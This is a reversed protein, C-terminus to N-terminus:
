VVSKRDGAVEENNQLINLGSAGLKTTLQTAITPIKAFLNATQPETMALVNRVHTKPIVLTHGKTTQTIDLFALIDDDEYIKYAPIEGAVIKCFICDTM